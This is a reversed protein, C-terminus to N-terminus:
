IGQENNDGAKRFEVEGTKGDIVIDEAEWAKIDVGIKLLEQVIAEDEANEGIYQEVYDSGDRFHKRFNVRTRILEEYFDRLRKKGWGVHHYLTLLVTADVASAYAMLDKWFEKKHEEIRKDMQNDVQARILYETMAKRGLRANREARAGYNAQM